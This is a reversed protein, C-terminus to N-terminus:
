FLSAQSWRQDMEMKGSEKTCKEMLTISLELGGRPVGKTTKKKEWKQEEMTLYLKESKTTTALCYEAM